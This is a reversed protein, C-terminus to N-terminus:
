GSQKKDIDFYILDDAPNPYFNQQETNQEEEVGVANGTPNRKFYIESNAEDRNDQWVVYVASGSVSVFADVSVQSDTLKEDPGWTQGCDTSCKYYIDKSNNDHWVVHINSGSVFVNAHRLYGSAETLLQDQNWSEGGDTSRIYFIKTDTGNRADNWAAVVLSGSSSISPYYSNGITNTLPIVDSWTIGGDSSRTTFINTYTVPSEAWVINLTGESASISPNISFETNTLRIDPGWKAGYDTSHKYYIEGWTGDRQDNWVVYVNAGDIAISSRPPYDPPYFWPEYNTLRFEPEWTVGNDTSRRYYLEINKDDRYDEWVVHVMAGSVDISPRDSKGFDKTLAVDPEWTLGGDISRKYYIEMNGDRTDYWVVHVYNGEAAINKQNGASTYSKATDNTLRVDPEWQAQAINSIGFLLCFLFLKKM